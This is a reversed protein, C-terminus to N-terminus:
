ASAARVCGPEFRHPLHGMQLDHLFLRFRALM